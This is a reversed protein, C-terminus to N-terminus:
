NTKEIPLTIGVSFIKGEPYIRVSGGHKTIIETVSELGVGPRIGDTKRSLFHGSQRRYKGDYTNEVKIYFTNGTIHTLIAARHEVDLQRRAAKSVKNEQQANTNLVKDAQQSYKKSTAELRACAELANELLNGLVSCWEIDSLPVGDPIYLTFQVHTNQKAATTNYYQLLADVAAHNCCAAAGSHATMSDPYTELYRILEEQVNQTDPTSEVQLALETVARIHQRFDHIIRRNEESRQKLQGSYETQMELQRKMQRFEEQFVVSYAYTSVLDSWIAAGIVLILVFCGWEPFWGSVVPEFDPLIRDWLLMAAYFVSGYFLIPSTLPQRETEATSVTHATSDRRSLKGTQLTRATPDHQSLKRTQGTHASSNHQLLKGTQLTRVSIIILYAASALKFLASATSFANRVPITAFASFLGYCLSVISFVATVTESIRRLLDTAQCLRNQLVIVLFTMGYWGFLELAYWPHIPLAAVSHLLPSGTYFAALLCLLSFLISNGRHMRLGMYFALIACILGAVILCLSLGLRATRMLSLSLLTGFAPPYVLGSYFHSYDSVALLITVTGGTKLSVVQSQTRASYTEEEPDGVQLVLEDNEYLKYASYIEPLELAYDGEEPLVLTLVYTGCGHPDSGDTGLSTQQGISTYYMYLSDANGELDEPTLLTGPYFAWGNVLYHIQHEALEEESLVLLGDIGQTGSKTYKNDWHYLALCLVSSLILVALLCIWQKRSTTM